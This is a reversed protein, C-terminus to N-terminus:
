EKKVTKIKKNIIKVSGSLDTRYVDCNKLNQLVKQSPHGYPNNEGVSILCIQPNIQKIFNFSTSTDSGHHAVKLIDINTLNYKKILDNEVQASADAMFLTKTQNIITYIILSNDNENNYKQNNLFFIQNNNINLKKLNQYYPINKEKLKKILNIKLNNNEGNNLIVKKVKFNNIINIAEGMHDYDSHTIILYDLQNIGEAQLYPITINQTLSYSTTNNILGGTDILINGQNHKLKILFSDGQGVDIMTISSFPNIYNINHHFVFIVFLILIYNKGKLWKYLTLTIILYYIIIIILNIHPMTLNFFTINSLKLSANEMFNILNFLIIDFPKFIFTILSIPYIIFTMLPVFYINIIPSLLNLKFFNNIIIPASVIFAILSIVFTKTIYNQYKNIINKFLILYFSVTFSLIFGLSYLYYPNIIILISFTIILLELNKIKLEFQKNITLLIFFLTARLISPQFDTIFLYFLLFCITLLYSTKKSFIKNLIYLIITSFLTIQAGSIAFLHTIGNIQYSNQVEKSIESDNGLVLAKLYKNSKYNEIHKNLYNKIKYPLSINKSIIKIKSASFTYYIKNSLLYKQYNFLYFNTNKNPKKMEGIAKIKIGLKCNFNDYYNILLNEKGKIKIVTKEKKNTCEYIKGSVVKENQSYQSKPPFIFNLFAILLSTILIVKTIYNFPLKIKLKKM